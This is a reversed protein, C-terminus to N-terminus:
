TLQNKAQSAFLISQSPFGRFHRSRPIGCPACAFSSIGRFGSVAPAFRVVIVPWVSL